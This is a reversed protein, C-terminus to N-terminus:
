VLEPGNGGSQWPINIFDFGKGNSAIARYRPVAYEGRRGTMEFGVLRFEVIDAVLDAVSALQKRYRRSQLQALGTEHLEGTVRPRADEIAEVLDWVQDSTMKPATSSTSWGSSRRADALLRGRPRCVRSIKSRARSAATHKLSL